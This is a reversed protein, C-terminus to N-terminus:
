VVIFGSKNWASLWGSVCDGGLPKMEALTKSVHLAEDIGLRVIGLPERDEDLDADSYFELLKLAPNRRMHEIQSIGNPSKKLDTALASLWETYPVVSVNLHKAFEKMITSWATPRPHALHLFPRDGYLM